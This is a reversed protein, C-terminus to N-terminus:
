PQYVTGFIDMDASASSAKQQWVVIASEGAICLDPYTPDQHSYVQNGCATRTTDPGTVNSLVVNPEPWPVPLGPGTVVLRDVINGRIHSYEEINEPHIGPVENWVVFFSETKPLYAVRPSRSDYACVSWNLSIPFPYNDKEKCCETYEFRNPDIFIGWVGSWQNEPQASCSTYPPRCNNRDYYVLLFRKEGEIEGYAVDPHFAQGSPSGLNLSIGPGYPYGGMNVAGASPGSYCTTIPQIEADLFMASIHGSFGWAFLYRGGKTNDPLHNNKELIDPNLIPSYDELPAYAVAHSFSSPISLGCGDKTILIQSGYLGNARVRQGWVEVAFFNNCDPLQHNLEATVLFEDLMSNYTIHLSGWDGELFTTTPGTFLFEPPGVPKGNEDLYRALVRDTTSGQEPVAVLFRNQNPSYAIAPRGLALHTGAGFPEIKDGQPVGNLDFCQIRLEYEGPTFAELLYAVIYQQTQSNYAVAPKEEKLQSDILGSKKLLDALHGPDVMMDGPKIPNIFGNPWPNIRMDLAMSPIASLHWIVVLTMMIRGLIKGKASHNRNQFDSCNSLNTM